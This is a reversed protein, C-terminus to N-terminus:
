KGCGERSAMRVQAQKPLSPFAWICLAFRQIQEGHPIPRHLKFGFGLRQESVRKIHFLWFQVFALPFSRTAFYSTWTGLGRTQGPVGHIYPYFSCVSEPVPRCDPNTAPVHDPWHSVEAKLLDAKAWLLCLWKSLTVPSVAALTTM